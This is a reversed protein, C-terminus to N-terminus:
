FSGKARFAGDASVFRRAYADGCAMRAREPTLPSDIPGAAALKDASASAIADKIAFFASSGLFLPPEGVARSSHVAHPNPNDVLVVRMDLPTDNASPLKYAGPGKTFLQGRKVWPHEKDGWVMEELCFLGYGQAFAGEIQGVDIAPNISCGLDMVVDARRVHSDGTLVDLEVESCAVGSTFYNFPQGRAANTAGEPIPKAFDYGCRDHPVIYFGQASLNVRRVYAQVVLQGWPVGLGDNSQEALEARLPELRELIQACADLAAMCYLDTSMSAASPSSNPVKDTATDEIHVQALDLGGLAHAVAQQVKTHLGQGMETGGHSVLVSGDTYVHVLAGGQNLLKATFSIGFIVPVMALGRKRWTNTANYADVEARRTAFEAVELGRAWLRALDVHTPEIVQDYHTSEGVALLNRERLTEPAVGLAGALHAVYTECVQMGQPGGFGRFATNSATNTKCLRGLCALNPVKYANACHFLARDMVAESLDLSYGANCYLAIDAAILKHTTKSAAARYVGKFPHRQGTIAMDVDRDLTLKCTRGLADAAVAVACTLFASRTEKGGFGGGMRKTVCAVKSAPVGLVSACFMQTKTPNQTSAIVRLGGDELPVCISSNSELYFHEQGGVYVAGEVTVVEDDDHDAKFKAVAEDFPLGTSIAHHEGSVPMLYSDTAIADDITCCVDDPAAVDGYEVVVARAAELATDQDDAVVVGIPQGTSTVASTVFCEEDKVVAGIKNSGKIDKASVFGQVGRMALAPAADVSTLTGKPITTLVLAAHLCDDEAKAFHDDAYKAEGSVQVRASRHTVSSSIPKATDIIPGGDSSSAAGKKKEGENTAAGNESKSAKTTNNVWAPWEQSGTTPPRDANLFTVAASKDADSILPAPPDTDEARRDALDLCVQVYFKRLFSACLTQRYEPMGGPVSAPLALEDAMVRVADDIADLSWPRGVLIAATKPAAITTPAMGGFAVSCAKVRWTPAEGQTAELEVRMGSTVISIDDERRKAQKYPAVFTLVKSSSAAASIAPALPIVVCAVIEDPALDVVRYSKFFSAVPVIRPEQSSASRLELVAGVAVLLPNMDSIPSATAVNGALSAVNRIQTSAFWKLMQFMAVCAPEARGELARFLRTLTVGGGVRLTTTDADESQSFTLAQLEDVNAVSVLHAYRKHKFKWEIGVETNGTVIKADPHEAKLALLQALTAPRYWTASSGRVVLADSRLAALERPFSEVTACTSTKAVPGGAAAVKAATCSSVVCNEVDCCASAACSGKAAAGGSACGGRHDEQAVVMSKAADLIPRYGTCRCLNGDFHHEVDTEGNEVLAYLAMVIGPTCFGCQSGHFEALREQVPHLGSRTSGLGEVTVVACSDLACVPTLCANVALTEVTTGTADLRQAVVTCAGCGGEGCGLKTGTLGLLRLQALATRTPEVDDLEYRTGNIHLVLHSRTKPTTLVDAAGAPTVAPTERHGGLGAGSGTM